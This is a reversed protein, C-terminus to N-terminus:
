FLRDEAQRAVLSKARATLTGVDKEYFLRAEYAAHNSDISGSRV